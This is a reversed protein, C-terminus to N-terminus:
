SIILAVSFFSFGVFSYTTWSRPALTVCTAIHVQHPLVLQSHSRPLSQACSLPNALHIDFLLAKWASLIAQFCAGLQSGTQTILPVALLGTHSSILSCLLSLHLHPSPNFLSTCVSHTRTSGHLIRIQISHPGSHMMLLLLSLM